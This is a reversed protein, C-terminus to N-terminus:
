FVINMRLIIRFIESKAHSMMGSINYKEYAAYYGVLGLSSNNLQPIKVGIMPGIYLTHYGQKLNSANYNDRFDWNTELGIDFYKSLAYAYRAKLYYWPSEQYLRGQAYGIMALDFDVGMSQYRWSAGIGVGAGFAGNGTNVSADTPISAILDLGIGIFYGQTQPVFQKHFLLNSDTPGRVSINSPAKYITNFLFPTQWRVDWGGGIGVRIKPIFVEKFVDIGEQNNKIKASVSELQLIIKGKALTSGAAAGTVSPGITSHEQANLLASFAIILLLSLTKKM